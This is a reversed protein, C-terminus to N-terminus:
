PDLTVIFSAQGGQRDRSQYLTHFFCSMRMLPVPGVDGPVFRLDLAKSRRTLLEQVADTGIVPELRYVVLADFDGPSDGSRVFGGGVLLCLPVIGRDKLFRLEAELAALLERRRASGGFQRVLMAFGIVYPSSRTLVPAELPALLPFGSSATCPQPMPLDTM